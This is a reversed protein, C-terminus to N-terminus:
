FRCWFGRDLGSLDKYFHIAKANHQELFHTLANRQDYGIECLLYAQHHKAELILAKLIDLGDKGGFLAISPEYTLPQSIPYDDCIYPPNSIILEIDQWSSPLLSCHKLTINSNPALTSINKQAVELAKQSIDTAFFRCQPHLLSLTISLIGSGIGVEAISELNHQTILENAKQVLIESEPRPILVSENVYFIHEYFNASQTIYEIPKGKTREDVLALFHEAQTLNVNQKNHTHLYVRSVQLVFSLLIESEFRPKLQLTEAVQSLKLIASDLLTDITHTM